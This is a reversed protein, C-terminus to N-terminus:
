PTNAHGGLVLTDLEAKAAQAQTEMKDRLMKLSSMTHAVRRKAQAITFDASDMKDLEATRWFVTEYISEAHFDVTKIRIDSTIGIDALEKNFSRLCRRAEGLAEQMQYLYDDKHGTKLLSQRNDWFAWGQAKDLAITARGLSTVVQEGACIAEDIEKVMNASANARTTKDMIEQAVDPSTQMLMQQKQAYLSDYRQQIDAYQALEDKCAKLKSDIDDVDKKAADYKLKAELAEEKEKETREVLISFIAYFAKKLSMNELKQVDLNEKKLKEAMDRAHGAFGARDFELNKIMAELKRKRAIGQQALRLEDDIKM